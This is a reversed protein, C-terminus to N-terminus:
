QHCFRALADGRLACRNVGLAVKIQRLGIQPRDDVAASRTPAPLACRGHGRGSDCGAVVSRLCFINVRLPNRPVAATTPALATLPRTCAAAIGSAGVMYLATM